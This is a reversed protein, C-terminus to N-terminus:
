ERKSQERKKLYRKPIAIGNIRAARIATVIEGTAAHTEFFVRADCFNTEAKKTMKKKPIMAVRTESAIELSTESTPFRISRSEASGSSTLLKISRRPSFSLGTPSFSPNIL